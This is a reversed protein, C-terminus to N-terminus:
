KIRNFKFLKNLDEVSPAELDIEKKPYNNVPKWSGNEDSYLLKSEFEPPLAIQYKQALYTKFDQVFAEDGYASSPVMSDIFIEMIEYKRADPSEDYAVGGQEKEHQIDEEMNPNYNNMYEKYYTDFFFKWNSPDMGDKSKWNANTFKRKALKIDEVKSLDIIWNDEGTLTKELDRVAQFTVSNDDYVRKYIEVLFDEGHKAYMKWRDLMMKSSPVWLQQCGRKKAFGVAKNFLYNLIDSYSTKEIRTFINKLLDTPKYVAKDPNGFNVLSRYMKTTIPYLINPWDRAFAKKKSDDLDEYGQVDMIRGATNIKAILTGDLYINIFEPDNHDEFSLTWGGENVALLPATNDLQPSVVKTVLEKNMKIKDWAQSEYTGSMKDDVNGNMYKRLRSIRQAFDSQCEDLIAIKVENGEESKITKFKIRLWGINDASGGGHRDSPVMVFSLVDPPIGLKDAYEGAKFRYEFMADGSSQLKHLEVRHPPVKQVKNFYLRFDQAAQDGLHEQILSHVEGPTYTDKDLNPNPM